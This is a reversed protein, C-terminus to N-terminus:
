LAMSCGHIYFVQASWDAAVAALFAESEPIKEM